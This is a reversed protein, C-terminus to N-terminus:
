SWQKLLIPDGRCSSLSGIRIEIARGDQEARLPDLCEEVRQGINVPQSSVANRGLRSFEMPDGVLNNTRDVNVTIRGLLQGAEEPLASRYARM